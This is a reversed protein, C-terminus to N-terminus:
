GAEAVEYAGIMDKTEVADIDAFMGDQLRIIRSAARVFGPRHSVAIITVIGALRQLTDCVGRETELDLASTVEDLILVAPMRVLARALGVRQRQGGSLRAGREGLVTFIGEPLSAVIEDAGALRLARLVQETGLSSDGLTVNEKLTDHFLFTDQPVYGVFQRWARLDVEKLDVGDILITGATPVFLGVLLDVATTKGAGSPGIITVFEGAGVRLNARRLVTKDGYSFTVENFLIENRLTPVYTGSTDERAAIASDTVDRLSEFAAEGWAIGQYESQMLTIRGALRYFLFGLMFVYGIPLRFVVVGAYIGVALLLALIPEQASNLLEGALVQKQQAGRLAETEHELLPKLHEERGMAKIAKIGALADTLRRTLNKLASTQRQGADRSMRIARSLALVIFGGAALALLAVQWSVLMAVATYVLVQVFGAFLACAARYATAATVVEASVANSFRGLPQGVFFPWSSATLARLLRLRLDTAVHAVTYGVQQMALLRFAAKLIMAAVIMILLNALSPTTGIRALFREVAKGAASPQQPDGGVADLLPLLTAIGLAEAMGALVLMVILLLSRSPYALLFYGILKSAGGSFIRV